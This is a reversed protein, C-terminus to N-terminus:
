KEYNNNNQTYTRNLINIASKLEGIKEILLEAQRLVEYNNYKLQKLEAEKEIYEETLINISHKM